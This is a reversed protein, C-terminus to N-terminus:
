AQNRKYLSAVYDILAEEQVSDVRVLCSDLDCHRETKWHVKYEGLDNLFVQLSEIIQGDYQLGEPAQLEVLWGGDGLGSESLICDPDVRKVFDGSNM